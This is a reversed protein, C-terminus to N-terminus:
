RSIPSFPRLMGCCFAYSYVPRSRVNSMKLKTKQDVNVIQVRGAGGGEGWIDDEEGV